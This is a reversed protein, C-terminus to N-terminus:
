SSADGSVAPNPEERPAPVTIPPDEEGTPKPQPTKQPSKVPPQSDKKRLALIAESLATINNLMELLATISNLMKRAITNELRIVIYGAKRLLEDRSADIIKQKHEVQHHQGDLEIIIKQKGVSVLIDVFYGCVLKELEVAVDDEQPLNQQLRVMFCKQLNNPTPQHVALATELSSLSNASLYGYGAFHKLRYHSSIVQAYDQVQQANRQASQLFLNTLQALLKQQIITDNRTIEGRQALYGLALFTNAIEQTTPNNADSATLKELLANITQASIVHTKGQQALYGLGLFTNAIHQATPKADPVALKGLLTNITQPSIDYTKGQQALYGLALFTNAIDQATTKADPVALKWLLANITKPSIDYTKGQQALYGLGLFTNAIHQTTPKANPVALKGLLTNITEPSIDYTKGQQALYGLALFTNAIAQTTPNADSATLKELLANITQAPIDYIKGQQALYGLGLFINAIHQATPNADSATLKELLANITQPSIDYTKGQQALYGLGLIANAIAQPAASLNALDRFLAVIVQTSLARQTTDQKSFTQFYGKNKHVMKAFQYFWQISCQLTTQTTNSPPQFLRRKMLECFLAQLPDAYLAANENICKAVATMLRADHQVTSTASNDPNVLYEVYDSLVRDVKAKLAPTLAQTGCATKLRMVFCAGSDATSPAISKSFYQVHEDYSYQKPEKTNTHLDEIVDAPQKSM